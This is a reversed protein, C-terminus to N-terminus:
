TDRRAGSETVEIRMIEEIYQRAIYQKTTSRTMYTFECLQM